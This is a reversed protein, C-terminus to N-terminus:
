TYFEIQKGYTRGCIDATRETIMKWQDLNPNFSKYLKSKGKAYHKGGDVGIIAIHTYDTFKAIWHIAAPTSHHHCIGGSLIKRSLAERDGCCARDEYYTWKDVFWQPYESFHQDQPERGIFRQVNEQWSEVRKVVLYESCFLFQVPRPMLHSLADNISALHDDPKLYSELKLLSPGKAAIWIRKTEVQAPRRISNCQIPM